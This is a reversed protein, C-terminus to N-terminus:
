ARGSESSRDSATSGNKDAEAKCRELIRTQRKNVISRCNCKATQTNWNNGQVADRTQVRKQEGADDRAHYRRKAEQNGEANDPREGPKRGHKFDPWCNENSTAHVADRQQQDTREM